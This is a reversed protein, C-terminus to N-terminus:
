WGTHMLYGNVSMGLLGACAPIQPAHSTYLGPIGAVGAVGKPPPYPGVSPAEGGLLTEVLQLAERFSATTEVLHQSLAQNQAAMEAAKRREQVM